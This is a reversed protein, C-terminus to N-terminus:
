LSNLQVLLPTTKNQGELVVLPATEKLMSVAILYRNNHLYSYDILEGVETEQTLSLLKQGSYITENTQIEFIKLEHKLTAKYHTRAIIEQGKYCGKNFSIYNTLHLDLRHPLFLGRSEPYINIQKHKLRLTNWTLSGLVQD